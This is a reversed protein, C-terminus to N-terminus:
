ANHWSSMHFLPPIAEGNKVEAVSTPSHDSEHIQWKAGRGPFLGQFWNSLLSPPGWLWDTRQTAYFFKKGRGPISGQSDLGYGTPISVSNNQEEEHPSIKV